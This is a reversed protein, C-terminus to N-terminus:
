LFLVLRVKRKTAVPVNGVFVTRSNREDEIAKRQEIEEKTFKQEPKAKRKNEAEEEEDDSDGRRKRRPMSQEQEEAESGSEGEPDLEGDLMAQELVADVDDYEDHEKHQNDDEEESDSDKM